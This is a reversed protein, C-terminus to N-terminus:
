IHCCEHLTGILERLCVRVIKDLVEIQREELHGRGRGMLLLILLLLLYKTMMIPRPPPQTTRMELAGDPDLWACAM